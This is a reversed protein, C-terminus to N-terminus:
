VRCRKARETINDCYDNIEQTAVPWIGRIVAVAKEFAAAVEELQEPDAYKAPGLHFRVDRSLECLQKVVSLRAAVSVSANASSAKLQSVALEFEDLLAHVIPDALITM